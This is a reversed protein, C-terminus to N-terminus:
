EGQEEESGTREAFAICADDFSPMFEPYGVAEGHNYQQWVEQLHHAAANFERLAEVYEARTAM